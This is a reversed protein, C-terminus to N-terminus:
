KGGNGPENERGEAMRALLALLMQQEPADLPELTARTIARAADVRAAFLARGAETLDVILRRRDRKDAITVVLGRERLRDIVGKITAADMATQRGLDIQSLPGCEHLKALAAFQTPTLDGIGTAFIALHRQSAKRLIFGIQKDLRYAQDPKGDKVPMTGQNRAHQWDIM